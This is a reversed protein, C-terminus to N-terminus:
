DALTDVACVFGDDDDGLTLRTWTKGDFIFLDQYSSVTLRTETAWVFAGGEFERVKELTAGARRYLDDGDSLYVSGKFEVVQWAVESDSEVELRSLQEGRLEAVFGEDGAILTSGDALDVAATLFEETHSETPRFMGDTFRYLAGRAGCALLGRSSSSVGRIDVDTDEDEDETGRSSLGEFQLAEFAKGDFRIVGDTGWIVLGDLTEIPGSGAWYVPSDHQEALKGAEFRFLRPGAHLYVDNFSRPLLNISHYGFTTVAFTPPSTTLDARVFASEYREDDEDQLILTFLLESESYAYVDGIEWHLSESGIIADEGEESFAELLATRFPNDGM